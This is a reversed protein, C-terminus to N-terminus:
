PYAGPDQVKEAELYATVGKEAVTNGLPKQFFKSFCQVVDERFDKHMSHYSECLQKVDLEAWADAIPKRVPSHPPTGESLTNVTKTSPKYCYDENDAIGSVLLVVELVANKANVDQLKEALIYIDFIIKYEAEIYTPFTSSTPNQLEEENKFGTSLQGTYVFNVYFAVIDPKDNLLNIVRTEAEEWSGNLARRFFESRSTLFSEHVMFDKENPSKGVSITVM